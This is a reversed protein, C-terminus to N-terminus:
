IRKSFINWSLYHNMMQNQVMEFEHNKFHTKGIYVNSISKKDFEYFNMHVKNKCKLGKSQFIKTFDMDILPDSVLFCHGSLSKHINHNSSFLIDGM